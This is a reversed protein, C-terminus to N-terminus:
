LVANPGRVRDRSVVLFDARGDLGVVRLRHDGLYEVRHTPTPGAHEADCLVIGGTGLPLEEDRDLWDDSTGGCRDFLIVAPVRPMQHLAELGDGLKRASAATATWGGKGACTETDADVSRVMLVNHHRALVACLTRSVAAGEAADVQWFVLGDNLAPSDSGAFGGSPILDVGVLDGTWFRRRARRRLLLLGIVTAAVLGGGVMLLRALDVPVKPTSGSAPINPSSRSTPSAEDPSLVNPSTGGSPVAGGSEAGSGAESGDGHMNAQRGSATLSRGELTLDIDRPVNIASWEVMGGDFREEGLVLTVTVRNYPLALAGAWLDDGATVDPNKGDNRLQLVHSESGEPTLEIRVPEELTRDAALRLLVGGAQAATPAAVVGLVACMWLKRVFRFLVSMGGHM